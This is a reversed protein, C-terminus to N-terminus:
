EYNDFPAPLHFEKHHTLGSYENEYRSVFDPKIKNEDIFKKFDETKQFYYKRPRVMNNSYFYSKHNKYREDYYDKSLYKTLYPGIQEQCEVKRIDVFGHGWLNSLVKKDIFGIDVVLHYHVAGRKQFEPKSLYKFDPYFKRLRKVFLAFKENCSKLDYINFDTTDSFTLTIFKSGPGFNAYILRRIKNFARTKTRVKYEKNRPNNEKTSRGHNRIPAKNLLIPKDIREYLEHLGGSIFLTAYSYCKTSTIVNSDLRPVRPSGDEGPVVKVIKKM